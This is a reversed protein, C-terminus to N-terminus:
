LAQLGSEIRDLKKNQLKPSGTIFDIKSKEYKVGMDEKIVFIEEKRVAM